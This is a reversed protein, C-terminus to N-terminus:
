SQSVARLSLPPELGSPSRRDTPVADVSKDVVHLCVTSKPRESQVAAMGGALAEEKTCRTRLTSQAAVDIPGIVEQGASSRDIALM